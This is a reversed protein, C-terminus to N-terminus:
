RSWTVIAWNNLGHSEVRPLCTYMEKEPHWKARM